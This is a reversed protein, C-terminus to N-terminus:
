KRVHRTGNKKRLAEKVGDKTSADVLVHPQLQIADIKDIRLWMVQNYVDNRLFQLPQVDVKKAIVSKKNAQLVSTAYSDLQVAESGDTYFVWVSTGTVREDTDKESM